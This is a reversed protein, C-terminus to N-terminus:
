VKYSLIDDDSTVNGKKKEKVSSRRRAQLQERRGIRPDERRPQLEPSRGNRITQTGKRTAARTPQIKGKKSKTGNVNRRRVFVKRKHIDCQVRKEKVSSRVFKDTFFLPRLSQVVHSLVMGPITNHAPPEPVPRVSVGIWV